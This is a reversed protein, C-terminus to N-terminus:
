RAASRCHVVNSLTHACRSGHTGKFISLTVNYLLGQDSWWLPNLINGRKLLCILQSQCAPNSFNENRLLWILQRNKRLGDVASNDNNEDTSWSDAIGLFWSGPGIQFIENELLSILQRHQCAVQLLQSITITVLLSWNGRNRKQIVLLVMQTIIIM